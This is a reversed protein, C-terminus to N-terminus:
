QRAVKRWMWVRYQVKADDPTGFRRVVELCGTAKVMALVQEDTYKYSPVVLIREGQEMRVTEGGYSLEIAESSMCCCENRGDLRNVQTSYVFKDRDFVSHGLIENANLLTNLVLKDAPEYAANIYEDSTWGDMGVLIMDGDVMVDAISKVMRSAGEVTLNEIGSGLWMLVCPSREVDSRQRLKAVHHLANNYTGFLGRCKVRKLAPLSALSKSLANRNIDLAYYDVGYVIQPAQTVAQLLVQTKELSGAGLEIIVSRDAILSAMENAYTQIIWREAPYLYYAPSSSYSAYLDAGDGQYMVEIPIQRKEPSAKFVGETIKVKLSDLNDLQGDQSIDVIDEYDAKTHRSTM